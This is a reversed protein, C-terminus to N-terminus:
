FCDDWDLYDDARSLCYIRRRLVDPTDDAELVHICERTDRRKREISCLSESEFKCANEAAHMCVEKPQYKYFLSVMWLIFGVVLASGITAGIVDIARVSSV